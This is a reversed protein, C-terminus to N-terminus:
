AQLSLYNKKKFFFCIWIRAFFKLWEVKNIFLMVVFHMLLPESTVQIYRKMKSSFAKYGESACWLEQYLLHRPVEKMLDLLVKCKVEHPWDRRSIVRKIGKEKLAPIIKGYFMDSPRPVPPPASSKTNAPGLALFQALQVRTQWAKFVSYISVVNGVWQILGARGSIPTVSYYRISLSNSCASSSSHLFGNIAQLLQMIRADLRLDERGKLLYTYKQGDSGLIGLKKPKTKTSLITVQEHFSAITVVGQLDTAKGSDPVKMQKELGPMPVDSSSLLALHPAVERLSVSSKRQYSALSAAISDFPRWVDGIAASSAPPIKFSVIASKLQDKYEEQFWAEHPTEPKRSTSALRRELAVVIPAMMASYRASNIKNKENQSLTVNEAIRAAEEKLV